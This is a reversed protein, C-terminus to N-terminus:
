VTKALKTALIEYGLSRLGVLYYIQCNLLYQALNLKNESQPATNLCTSTKTWPSEYDNENVFDFITRLDVDDVAKNLWLLFDDPEKLLLRNNDGGSYIAVQDLNFYVKNLQENTCRRILDGNTMPVAVRGEHCHPCPRSSISNETAETIFGYGNCSKCITEKYLM